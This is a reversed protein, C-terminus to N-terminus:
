ESSAHFARCVLAATIRYGRRETFQPPTSSVPAPAITWAGKIEVDDERIVPVM